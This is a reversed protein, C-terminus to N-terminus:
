LHWLAATVCTAHDESPLAMAELLASWVTLIHRAVSCQSTVLGGQISVERRKVGEYALSLRRLEDNVRIVLGEVEDGVNLVSRVDNVNRQIDKRHILGRVGPKIGVLARYSWTCIVTSRASNGPRYRRLPDCEPLRMSLSLRGQEVDVALISAIVVDGVSFTEPMRLTMGSNM